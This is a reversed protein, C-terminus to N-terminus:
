ESPKRTRRSRSSAPKRGAVRPARQAPVQEGASPAAVAAEPIGGGMLDALPRMTEFNMLVIRIVATLPVALIMGLIGWILGWFALALLVAVPHLNLGEGLMKTEIGNGIIVQIATPLAVVLVVPGLTDFQALALPIPLLTAVVSGVNPIFNLFFALLGFVFALDLGILYLSLWVLLGTVGSLAVKIGIYQRIRREAEYLFSSAPREPVRGALLFFSFVLILFVNSAISMATGFSASIFATTHSRLEDLIITQNIEVGWHMARELIRGVLAAFSDSYKGATSVVRSVAGVLVLGFALMVIVVMGMTVAAAAMRPTKIRTILWDMMPSAMTVLFFALVFPVLISRTFYLGGAVAVAALILASVTRLWDWEERMEPM